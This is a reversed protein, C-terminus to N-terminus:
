VSLTEDHSTLHLVFEIQAELTREQSRDYLCLAPFRLGMPRGITPVKAMTACGKRQFRPIFEQDNATAERQM